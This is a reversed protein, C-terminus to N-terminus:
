GLLRFRGWGQNHKAVSFGIWMGAQAWVEKLKSETLLDPYKVAFDIITGPKIAEHRTIGKGQPAPCAVREATLVEQPLFVDAVYVYHNRIAQRAKQNLDCLRGGERMCATFYGGPLWIYGGARRFDIFEQSNTPSGGLCPTMLEIHLDALQYNTYVDKRETEAGVVQLYVLSPDKGRWVDQNQLTWISAGGFEPGGNSKTIFKKTKLVQIARKGLTKDGIVGLLEADTVQGTTLLAAIAKLMAEQMVEPEVVATATGNTGTM